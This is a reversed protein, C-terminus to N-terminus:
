PGADVIQVGLRFVHAAMSSSLKRGRIMMMPANKNKAERRWRLAM